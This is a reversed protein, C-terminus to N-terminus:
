FTFVLAASVLDADATTAVDSDFKSYDAKLAVKDAFDWRVGVSQFM